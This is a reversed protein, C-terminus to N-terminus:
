RFVLHGEITLACNRVEEQRLLILLPRLLRQDQRINVHGLDGLRDFQDILSDTHRLFRDLFAEKPPLDYLVPVERLFRLQLGVKLIRYPSILRHPSFLGLLFIPELNYLDLSSIM